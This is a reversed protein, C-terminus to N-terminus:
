APVTQAAASKANFMRIVDAVGNNRHKEDAALILDLDHKELADIIGWHEASQERRRDEGYGVAARLAAVLQNGMKMVKAVEENKCQAHILGHFNANELDCLEGNGAALAVDYRKQIKSLQSILRQDLQSFMDRYVVISLVARLEYVDHIFKADISRVRAGRNPTVVVVGEGQLRQLAERIPMQSLGYRECLNAVKLRSGPPFVGTIIDRLM